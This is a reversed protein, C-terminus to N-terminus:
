EGDGSGSGSGDVYDEDDNAAADCSRTGPCVRPQAAAGACKEGNNQPAPNDCRRTRQQIGRGCTTSCPGWKGWRSWQGNVVGPRRDEESNDDEEDRGDDEGDGSGSGGVMDEDDGDEGFGPIDGSGQEQDCGDGDGGECGSGEEPEVVGGGDGGDPCQPPLGHCRRHGVAVQPCDRGGHRPTPNNCQRVRQQFAVGCTQSCPGWQGWHSWGGDVAAPCAPLGRCQKTKTNKGECESGGNQPEPNDCKRLSSQISNRGCTESCAGWPGWEGWQGDVPCGRVNICDRSEILQGRCFKGGFKPRPNRCARSRVQYGVQGTCAKASCRGWQSWASWGGDVPCNPVRTNKCEMFQSDGGDNPPCERGGFQPVPSDCVRTREVVGTGCTVSCSSWRGWQGWQGDIPCPDVNCQQRDRKKGVCNQGGFQPEPSDCERRRSRMSEGCTASCAGFPGWPGWQGHIPCPGQDCRRLQLPEGECDRGEHQPAPRDCLRVRQHLGAGCSVSCQGWEAWEGWGGDVPCPDQDCPRVQTDPGECNAPDGLCRRRRFHWGQGCTTTCGEWGGWETWGEREEEVDGRIEACPVCRKGKLNRSYGQALPELGCCEEASGYEGDAEIEESCRRTAPDFKRWCVKAGSVANLTLCAACLFPLLLRIEAM